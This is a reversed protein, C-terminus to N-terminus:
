KNPNAFLFFGRRHPAFMVGIGLSVVGCIDLFCDSRTRMRVAFQFLGNFLCSFVGGEVVVEWEGQRGAM